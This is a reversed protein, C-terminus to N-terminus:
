PFNVGVPSGRVVKRDPLDIEHVVREEPFGKFPRVHLRSQKAVPAGSGPQIENIRVQISEDLFLIQAGDKEGTRSM